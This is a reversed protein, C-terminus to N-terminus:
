NEEGNLIRNIPNNRDITRKVKKIFIGLKSRQINEAPIDTFVYDNENADQQFTAYHAPTSIKVPTVDIDTHPIIEAPETVSATTKLESVLNNNKVPLMAAIETPQQPADKIEPIETDPSIKRENKKIEKTVINKEDVRNNDNVKKPKDATTQVKPQSPNEQPSNIHPVNVNPQAPQVISINGKTSEVPKQSLRTGFWVIFGLIAAAATMRVFFAYRVLAGRRYLSEKNPFLVKADPALYSCAILDFDQKLESHEKLFNLVFAREEDSLEGDHYEVFRKEYNFTDIFGDGPRKFLFSKDVLSINDPSQITAMLEDWEKQLQPNAKVFMEVIKRQEASLENDAYLLYYEEYNENNINM